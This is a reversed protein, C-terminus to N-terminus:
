GAALAQNYTLSAKSTMDFLKLTDPRAVIESLARTGGSQMEFVMIPRAVSALPLIQGTILDLVTVAM